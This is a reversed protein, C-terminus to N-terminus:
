SASVDPAAFPVAAIEPRPSVGPTTATGALRWPWGPAVYTDAPILHAIEAHLEPLRSWHVGPKFHHATHLGLNGTCTNYFRQLINNCAVFHSATSRGAHHAYTAWATGVLSFAPAFVFVFLGPVPRYAVLAIIVAATFLGMWLFVRQARPYRRGVHWARPYATLAVDLSYELEGMTTGDARQWRSEDKTQDLYTVHHGLAHHLVWANASVGTHLAYILELARNLVPLTFVPVHQHHHNFACVCAKPLIGVFFWVVLLAVHDVFLYVCLDVAFLAAFLTVPVRDERYRFWM